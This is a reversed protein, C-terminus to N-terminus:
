ALPLDKADNSHIRTELRESMVRMWKGTKENKADCVVRILDPYSKGFIPQGEFMRAVVYIADKGPLISSVLFM